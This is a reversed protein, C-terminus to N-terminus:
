LFYYIFLYYIFPDSIVEKADCIENSAVIKKLFSTKGKTYIASTTDCGTFAHLVMIYSQLADQLTSVADRINWSKNESTFTIKHLLPKWHFSLLLALDTDDAVM